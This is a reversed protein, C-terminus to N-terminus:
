KDGGTARHIPQLTFGPIYGEWKPSQSGTDNNILLQKIVVHTPNRLDVRYAPTERSEYLNGQANQYVWWEGNREGTWVDGNKATANM